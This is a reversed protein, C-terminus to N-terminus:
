AKRKVGAPKPVPVLGLLGFTLAYVASVGIVGKVYGLSSWQGLTIVTLLWGFVISATLLPIVSSLVGSERWSQYNPEEGTILPMMLVYIFLVITTFGLIAAGLAATRGLSGGAGNFIWLFEHFTGLYYTIAAGPLVLKLQRLTHQSWPVRKPPPPTMYVRAETQTLPHQAPESASPYHYWIKIVHVEM